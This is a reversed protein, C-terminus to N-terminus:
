PYTIFARPYIGVKFETDMDSLKFTVRIASIENNNNENDLNKTAECEIYSKSIDVKDLLANEKGNVTLYIGPGVGDPPPKDKIRLIRDGPAISNQYTIEMKKTSDDPKFVPKFSANISRLEASIRDMAVQAKLAAESNRKSALFGNIGSYIFLGAFAGIFGILILTTVLEILVFGNTSARTM